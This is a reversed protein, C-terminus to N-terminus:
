KCIYTYIYIYIYIYIHISIYLPQFDLAFHWNTIALSAVQLQAVSQPLFQLLSLLRLTYIEKFFIFVHVHIYVCTSINTITYTHIHMRTAATQPLFQLLSILRSILIYIYIYVDINISCRDSTLILIQYILIHIRTDICVHKCLYIKIYRYM